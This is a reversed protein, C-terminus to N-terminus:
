LLGSRNRHPSNTFVCAVESGPASFTIIATAQSTDIAITSSGATFECSIDQLTWGSPVIEQVTYEFGSDLGSEDHEEGGHLSFAFNVPQGPRGGGCTFDFLTTSDNNTTSKAVLITDGEQAAVSNFM